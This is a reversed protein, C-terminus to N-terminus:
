INRRRIRWILYGTMALWVAALSFWTIAYELHDNPINTTVPMPEPLGPVEPEVKRAVILVPETGLHEALAPLDRAFWINRALDPEPTFTKDVEDPWLLNGDVLFSGGPRAADKQAEPVFGLDVLVRRDDELTGPVIVRFGPGVFKRSTLVHVEPGSIEVRVRVRRWNDAEPDPRAPIATAPESMRAAIEALKAEKWALRDLQWFGLALLIAAGGLGLIIAFLYRM